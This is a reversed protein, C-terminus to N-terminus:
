CNACRATTERRRRARTGFEAGSAYDRHQILANPLHGILPLVGNSCPYRAESMNADHQLTIPVM